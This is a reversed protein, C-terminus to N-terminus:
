EIPGFNYVVNLMGVYRMRGISEDDNDDISNGENFGYLM